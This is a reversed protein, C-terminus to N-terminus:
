NKNGKEKRLELSKQPQFTTVQCLMPKQKTQSDQEKKGM